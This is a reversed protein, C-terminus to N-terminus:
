LGGGHRVRKYETVLSLGSVCRFIAIESIKASREVDQHKSFNEASSSSSLFFHGVRVPAPAAAEREKLAGSPVLVASEQSRRFSHIADHYMTNILRSRLGM